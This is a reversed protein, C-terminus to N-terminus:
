ASKRRLSFVAAVIVGLVVLTAGTLLTLNLWEHLSSKAYRVMVDGVTRFDGTTRNLETIIRRDALEIAAWGAAGELLVAIGIAALARGRRRAAVLLLFGFLASMAAAGISAWPGWTALWGLQGQRLSQTTSPVTVTVPVTLKTPVTVHHSTLMQQVSSENLMPALDVVWESDQGSQPKSFLWNHAAKNAEAFLPPFAPSATFKAVVDHVQSTDATGGHDTILRMARTTLEAAMASQLAPDAAAKRALRGYGDVDVINRQLWSAPVLVVLAATTALWLVVTLTLRM